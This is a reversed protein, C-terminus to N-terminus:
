NTSLQFPAMELSKMVSKKLCTKPKIKEFDPMPLATFKFHVDLEENDESSSRKRTGSRSIRRETNLNFELFTIKKQVEHKVEFFKYKPM